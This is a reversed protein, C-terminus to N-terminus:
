KMQDGNSKDHEDGFDFLYQVGSEIEETEPEKEEEKIATIGGDVHVWKLKSM